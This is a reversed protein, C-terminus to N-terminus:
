LSSLPTKSTFNSNLLLTLTELSNNKHSNDVPVESFLIAESSHTVSPFFTTHLNLKTLQAVLHVDQTPMIFAYENTTAVTEGNNTWHSFIYGSDPQCSITVLSNNGYIGEGSLEAHGDPECSLTLVFAAAPDPPLLPDFIDEARLPFAVLM